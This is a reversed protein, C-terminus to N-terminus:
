LRWGNPTPLLSVSPIKWFITSLFGISEPPNWVCMLATTILWGSSSNSFPTTLPPSDKKPITPPLERHLLSHPLSFLRICMSAVVSLIFLKWPVAEKWLHPSLCQSFWWVNLWSSFCHNAHPRISGSIQAQFIIRVSTLISNQVSFYDVVWRM